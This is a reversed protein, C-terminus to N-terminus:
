NFLKGEEIRKIVSKLFSVELPNPNEKALEEKLRQSYKIKAEKEIKEQLSM